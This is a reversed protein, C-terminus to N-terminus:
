GNTKTNMQNEQHADMAAVMRDVQALEKSTPKRTVEQKEWPFTGLDKPKLTNKYGTIPRGKGDLM